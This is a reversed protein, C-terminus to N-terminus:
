SLTVVMPLSGANAPHSAIKYSFGEGTGDNIMLYGNAYQNATVATAGVAVTIATAGIPATTTKMNQHNTIQAPSQLVTGAVLTVGGAQAYRFARGDNTFALDGLNHQATTTDVFLQQAAIQIGPGLTSPM